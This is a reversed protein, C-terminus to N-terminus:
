AAGSAVAVAEAPQFGARRRYTKFTYAYENKADPEHRESAILEWEAETVAPFYVDGPVDAEVETLYLLQTAEWYLAYVDAGGIVFITDVGAETAAREAMALAEHPDHAVVVGSSAFFPNRTLVVNTRKPLPRGISQYCKRGMVVPHGLTRRKFYKLDAPLYWPIQNDSGIVRQPTMAVIAALTMVPLTAPRSCARAPHRVRGPVNGKAGEAVRDRHAM